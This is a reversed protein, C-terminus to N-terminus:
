KKITDAKVSVDKCSDVKCSDVKCTDTMTSDGVVIPQEETSGGCSALTLYSALAFVYFVNKM